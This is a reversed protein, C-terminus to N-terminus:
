IGCRPRAADPSLQPARNRKTAKTQLLCYMEADRWGRHMYTLRQFEADLKVDPKPLAAMVRPTIDGSPEILTAFSLDPKADRPANLFTKDVVLTPTKGVFILKGGAKVFAQFARPRHAHDGDHVSGCSPATCLFGAWSLNKFGGDAITSASLERSTLGLDVQRESCVAV